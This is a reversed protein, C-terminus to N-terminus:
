IQQILLRHLLQITISPTTPLALSLSLNLRMLFSSICLSLTMVGVVISATPIFRFAILQSQLNSFILSHRHPQLLLFVSIAFVIRFCISFCYIEKHRTQYEQRVWICSASPTQMQNLLESFPFFRFYQVLIKHFFHKM